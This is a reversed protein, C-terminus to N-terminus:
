IRESVCSNVNKMNVNKVTVLILRPRLPVSISYLDSVALMLCVLYLLPDIHRHGHGTDLTERVLEQEAEEEM